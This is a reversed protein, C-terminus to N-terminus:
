LRAAWVRCACYGKKPERVHSEHKDVVNPRNQMIQRSRRHADSKSRENSFSSRYVNIEEIQELFLGLFSVIRILFITAM